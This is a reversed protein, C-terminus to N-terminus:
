KRRFFKLFNHRCTIRKMLKDLRKQYMRREEENRATRIALELEKKTLTEM